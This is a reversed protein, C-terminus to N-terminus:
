SAKLQRSAIVELQENVPVLGEKYIKPNSIKYHYCILRLDPMKSPYFDSDLKKFYESMIGVTYHYLVRVDNVDQFLEHDLPEHHIYEGFVNECFKTYQKTHIIHAHWFPDVVDSVAHMNKPDIVPIFYYQKLALIGDDLFKKSVFKGQKEFAKKVERKVGTFDERDILNIKERHFSSLKEIIVTDILNKSM